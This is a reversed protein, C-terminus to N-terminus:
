TDIVFLGSIERPQLERKLVSRLHVQGWPMEQCEQYMVNKFYNFIQINIKRIKALKIKSNKSAKNSCKKVHKNSLWFRVYMNDPACQMLTKEGCKMYITYYGDLKRYYDDKKRHGLQISIEVAESSPILESAIFLLLAVLLTAIKLAIPRSMRLLFINQKTCIFDIM